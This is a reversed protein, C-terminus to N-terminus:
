PALKPQSAELEVRWKELFGLLTKIEQQPGTITAGHVLNMSVLTHAKAETLIPRFPKQTVAWERRDKIVMQAVIAPLDPADQVLAANLIAAV